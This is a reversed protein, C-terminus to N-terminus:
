IWVVTPFAPGPRALLYGQVYTCGLRVVTDREGETEVGEAIVEMGLGTSLTVLSLVVRQRIADADIGRVLSMDIKVIEPRVQAFYSLGAYGAGLDDIALRYGLARLQDLRVPLEPVTELSTRETLELVVRRAHRSLPAGPEYLDHDALDAPHLNVFFSSALTTEDLQAAVINRVRRGLLHLGGLKEAADLVAAPNPLTPEDSRMLAEYGSPVRTAATVIPQYVVRLSRLARRFAAELNMRADSAVAGGKTTALRRVGVAELVVSRLTEAEVPKQLYRFAGLEVAAAASELSAVGTVFIVPLDLDRERVVRLMEIGSVGPMQLDSVVVDFPESSLRALAEAADTARSVSAAVSGLVRAYAQTMAVDDDVVLVRPRPLNPSGPEPGLVERTTQKLSKAM